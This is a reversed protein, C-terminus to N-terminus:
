AEVLPGHADAFHATRDAIRSLRCVSIALLIQLSPSHIVTFETQGGEMIPAPLEILEAQSVWGGDAGTWWEPRSLDGAAADNWPWRVLFVQHEKDGVSFAVLYDGDRVLSASGVLM